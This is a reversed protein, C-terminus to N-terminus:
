LLGLDRLERRLAEPMDAVAGTQATLDSPADDHALYRWGQFPRHPRPMVPTVVPDLVIHCRGIGDTGVFPRLDLLRQRAAVQRRIVWFLSGGELLEAARKPLMRTTHVHEAPEKRRRKDALRNQILEGLQEVTDVGVSLKILHLPM